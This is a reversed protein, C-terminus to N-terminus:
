QCLASTELDFDTGQDSPNNVNNVVIGDPLAVFQFEDGSALALICTGLSDGTDDLSFDVQYRGAAPARLTSVDFANLTLAYSYPASEGDDLSGASNRTPSKAASSGGPM